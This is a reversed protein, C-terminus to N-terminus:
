NQTHKPVAKAREVNSPKSPKTIGQRPSDVYEIPLVQLIGSLGIPNVNRNVKAVKPFPEVTATRMIRHNVRVEQSVHYKAVGNSRIGTRMNGKRVNAPERDRITRSKELLQLQHEGAKNGLSDDGDSFSIVPPTSM